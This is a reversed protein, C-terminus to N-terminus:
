FAVYEWVYIEGAMVDLAEAGVIASGLTKGNYELSGWSTNAMEADSTYLMWCKSFDAPNDVGNISTVMGNSMTYTFNNEGQKLTEMCDLLTAKGDTEEVSIVVRTQSNEILTCVLKSEGNSKNVGCALLCLACLFSFCVALFISFKRKM